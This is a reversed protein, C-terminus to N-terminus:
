SGQLKDSNNSGRRRFLQLAGKFGPTYRLVDYTRYEYTGTSGHIGRFETVLKLHRTSIYKNYEQLEGELM